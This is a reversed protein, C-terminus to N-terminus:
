PSWAASMAICGRMNSHLGIRRRFGECKKLVKASRRAKEPVNLQNGLCGINQEHFKPTKAEGHV